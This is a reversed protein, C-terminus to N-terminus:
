GSPERAIEARHADLLVKLTQLDIKGDAHQMRLLREFPTTMDDRDLLEIKQILRDLRLRVTPYSIGYASALEKMSGSALVFRKIFSLDQEELADVWRLSERGTRAPLDREQKQRFM